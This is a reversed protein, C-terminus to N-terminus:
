ILPEFLYSSETENLQLVPRGDELRLRNHAVWRLVMPYLRHEMLLIRQKLSDLDDDPSVPVAGQAIVPGTDCGEDVFHVTAGSIRVGHELAQRQAHLGPFQPLLSPHINIIRGPFARVFAPSLIRMFGALFVWEIGAALLKDALHSDYAERNAFDKQLLVLTQIGAAEARALAPAQPRNCAVLAINAQAADSADILVQLNSGRGSVLVAIRPSM